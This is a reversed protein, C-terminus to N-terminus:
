LTAAFAEAEAWSKFEGKIHWRKHHMPHDTHEVLDNTVPDRHFQKWTEDDELTYVHFVRGRVPHWDVYSFTEGLKIPRMVLKGDPGPIGGADFGGVTYHRPTTFKGTEPHKAPTGAGVHFVDSDLLEQTAVETKMIQGREIRIRGDIEHFEDHHQVRAM